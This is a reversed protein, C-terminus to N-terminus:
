DPGPRGEDDEREIYEDTIWILMVFLMAAQFVHWFVGILYLGLGWPEGGALVNYIQTGIAVGGTVILQGKIVLHRAGEELLAGAIQLASGAALLLSCIVWTGSEDLFEMFLFPLLCFLSAQITHLVMGRFRGVDKERWRHDERRRFFVVIASFGAMTISVEALTLLVDM